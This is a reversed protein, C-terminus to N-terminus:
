AGSQQDSVRALVVSVQIGPEGPRSFVGHAAGLARASDNSDFYIVGAGHDLSQARRKSRFSYDWVSPAVQVMFFDYKQDLDHNVMVGYYRNGVKCKIYVDEHTTVGSEFSTKAAWHGCLDIESVPPSEKLSLGFERRFQMNAREIETMLDPPFLGVEIGHERLRLVGNGLIYPNPDLMGIVVSAIRKSIILDACSTKAAGNRDVGRFTCPELTTYLVAGATVDEGLRDLLLYEAHGVLTHEQSFFQDGSVLVAGVLPDSAGHTASRWMAAVAEIMADTNNM